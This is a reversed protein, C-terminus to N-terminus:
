FICSSCYSVLKKWQHSWLSVQRGQQFSFPQTWWPSWRWWCNLRCCFPPPTIIHAPIMSSLIMPWILTGAAALTSEEDYQSTNSDNRSGQSSSSGKNRRQWSMNMCSLARAWEARTVSINRSEISNMPSINMTQGNEDSAGFGSSFRQDIRMYLAYM